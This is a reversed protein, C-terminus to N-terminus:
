VEDQKEATSWEFLIADKRGFAVMKDGNRLTMVDDHEGKVLSCIYGEVKQDNVLTAIVYTDFVFPLSNEKVNNIVANISNEMQALTCVAVHIAEPSESKADRIYVTYLLTGQYYHCHNAKVVATLGRDLLDKIVPDPLLNAGDIDRLLKIVKAFSCGTYLKKLTPPKHVNHWVRVNYIGEDVQEVSSYM